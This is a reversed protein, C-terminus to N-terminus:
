IGWRNGGGLISVGMELAAGANGAAMGVQHGCGPRAAGFRGLGKAEGPKSRRQPFRPLPPDRLGPGGSRGRIEPLPSLGESLPHAPRAAPRLSKSPAPPFLPCLRDPQLPATGTAAGNTHPRAGRAMAVTGGAGRLRAAGPATRVEGGVPPPACWRARVCPCACEPRERAGPPSGSAGPASPGGQGRRHAHGWTSWLSGAQTPTTYRLLHWGQGPTNRLTGTTGTEPQGQPYKGTQARTKAEENRFIHPESYSQWPTVSHTITNAM